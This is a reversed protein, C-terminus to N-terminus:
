FGIKKWNVKNKSNGLQMNKLISQLENVAIRIKANPFFGLNNQPEHEINRIKGLFCGNSNYACRDEEFLYDYVYNIDTHKKVARNEVMFQIIQNLESINYHSNSFGQELMFTKHSIYGVYGLCAADEEKLIYYNKNSRNLHFELM